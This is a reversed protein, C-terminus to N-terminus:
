AHYFINDDFWDWCDSWLEEDDAIYEYDDECAGDPVGIMIWDLWLVEDGEDIVTQNMAKLWLIRDERSIENFMHNNSM